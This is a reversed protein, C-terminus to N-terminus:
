SVKKKFIFQLAAEFQEDESLRAINSRNFMKYNVLNTVYEDLTINNSFAALRLNVVAQDDLDLAVMIRNM